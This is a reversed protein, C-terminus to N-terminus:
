RRHEDDIVVRHIDFDELRHEELIFDPTVGSM